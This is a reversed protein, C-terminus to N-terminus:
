QQGIGKSQNYSLINKLKDQLQKTKYYETPFSSLHLGTGRSILRSQANEQMYPKQPNPSVLQEVTAGANSVLPLAQSIAYIWKAPAEIRGTQPNQAINLKSAVDPALKIIGLAIPELLPPLPQRAYEDAAIPKGTFLNKNAILEYPAKVAPTLGEWLKQAIAQLPHGTGLLQQTEQFPFNPNLMLPNGVANRGIGTYLNSKMWDPMVSQEEPTLNNIAQLPKITVSTYKGPNEIIYKVQNLLNNKTWSYFPIFKRLSREVNTLNNYDIFSQNVKNAIQQIPIDKKFESMASSLRLVNYSISNADTIAGTVKGTAKQLGQELAPGGIESPSFGKISTLVGSRRWFDYWDAASKEVNGITILRETDEPHTLIDLAKPLNNFSGLGFQYAEVWMHSYINRLTFGPNYVTVQKKWFNIVKTTADIFPKAASPDTMIATITNLQKAINEPLYKDTYGPIALKSWGPV